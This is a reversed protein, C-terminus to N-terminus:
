TLLEVCSKAHYYHGPAFKLKKRGTGRYELRMAEMDQRRIVRVDMSVRSHPTTNYQTAHLCRPDFMLFSGYEMTAPQSVSACRKWFESDRQVRYAFTEFDFELEELLKMSDDMRAIMMSNTGYAQTLPIWVNVGYPPHGLMVDTHIRPKWTFGTQHPFQFRITPVTQFYLDADFLPAIVERVFRYYLQLFRDDTEYFARSVGNLESEDLAKLDEPLITHLQALPLTEQEVRIVRKEVLLRRIEGAFDCAVTDYSDYYHDTGFRNSLVGCSKLDKVFQNREELSEFRVTMGYHGLNEM